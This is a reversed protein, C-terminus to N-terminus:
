VPRLEAVAADPTQRSVFRDTKGEGFASALYM